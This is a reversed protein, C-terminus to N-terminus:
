KLIYSFTPCWVYPKRMSGWLAGTGPSGPGPLCGLGRATFGGLASRHGSFGPSVTGAQASRRLAPNPSGLPRRGREPTQAEPDQVLM